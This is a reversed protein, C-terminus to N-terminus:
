RSASYAGGCRVVQLHAPESPCVGSQTLCAPANQNDDGAGGLRRPHRALGALCRSETSRSVRPWKSRANPGVGEDQEDLRLEDSPVLAPGPPGAPGPRVRCNQDIAVSAAPHVNVLGCRASCPARPIPLCRGLGHGDATSAPPGSRRYATHSRGLSVTPVQPAQSCSPPRESACRSESATVQAYCAELSTSQHLLLRRTVAPRAKPDSSNRCGQGAGPESECSGPSARAQCSPPRRGPLTRGM